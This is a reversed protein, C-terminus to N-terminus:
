SSWVPYYMLWQGPTKRIFSEIVRLVAEGNIRIEEDPDPLHILDIPDSINLHYLQDAQMEAAVVIVPVEAEIAMRIHGAPLTSPYGFFNLVQKKRRIPRDVATIVFGGNRMNQIAKKHAEPNAPTIDLGTQARIDNQIKYGGTPNGYTLVQAKLGRYAAALLVLDFNSLHPAVIFAGPSDHYSQSILQELRPTLTSLQKLGIPNYLNHYLDVFCHGAHIFVEEVAIKIEDAATHQGRVVIQNAHVARVMPSNKRRALFKAGLTAFIYGLDPPIIRGLGLGFNVGVSSKFFRQM